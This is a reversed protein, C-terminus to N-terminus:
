WNVYVDIVGVSCGCDYVKGQRGLPTDVITGKSLTSSAVCIYEDEDCVYGDEDTHRGPIKLGGGPLVRESYWTWKYGGWHLVGHYEFDAPEYLLPSSESYSIPTSIIEETEVTTEEQIPTTEEETEVPIEETAIAVEPITCETIETPVETPDTAIERTEIQIPENNLQTDAVALPSFASFVLTELM